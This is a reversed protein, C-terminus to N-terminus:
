RLPKILNALFHSEAELMKLNHELIESLSAPGKNKPSNVMQKLERSLKKIILLRARLRRRAIAPKMYHLFYLSLDLSFQPRKFDLFSQSLLEDLRHEGKPTLEYVFRQPRRGQKDAHKAVLGKQELVKLPYYISKLEVGAFLFLIERTKKKIEYGHKPSEKLMGLLLFEQEIM